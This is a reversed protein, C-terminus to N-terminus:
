AECAHTTRSSRLRARLTNQSFGSGREYQPLPSEIRSCYAWYQSAAYSHRLRRWSSAKTSCRIHGLFATALQTARAPPVGTNNIFHRDRELPLERGFPPDCWARPEHDDAVALSHAVRLIQDRAMETAAPEGLSAPELDSRKRVTQPAGALELTRCRQVGADQAAGHLRRLDEKGDEPVDGVLGPAREALPM